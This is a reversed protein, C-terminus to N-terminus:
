EQVHHLLVLWQDFLLKYHTIGKAVVTRPILKERIEKVFERWTKTKLQQKHNEIELSLM